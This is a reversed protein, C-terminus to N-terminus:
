RPTIRPKPVRNYSEVQDMFPHRLAEHAYPRNEMKNNILSSVFKRANRDVLKKLAVPSGKLINRMRDFEEGFPHEGKTLVFFAIM